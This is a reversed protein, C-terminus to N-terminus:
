IISLMSIIDDAEYGSGIVAANRARQQPSEIAYPISVCACVLSFVDKPRQPPPSRSRDRALRHSLFNHGAKGFISRRNITGNVALGFRIAHEIAARNAVPLAGPLAIDLASAHTNPAAGFANPAGSFMKSRTLLQTHTEIGVITQWRTV